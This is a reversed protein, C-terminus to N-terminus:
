ANGQNDSEPVAAAFAEAIKEGAWELNGLHIMAGVQDLTLGPDEHRLAAWLFARIDVASKSDIGERLASKGTVEEFSALANFDILMKRHRDLEIAVLKPEVSQTMM